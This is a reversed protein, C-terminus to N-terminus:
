ASWGGIFWNLMCLKLLFSATVPLSHAEAWASFEGAGRSVDCQGQTWTSQTCIWRFTSILKGRYVDMSYMRSFGPVLYLPCSHYRSWLTPRAVQTCFVSAGFGLCLLHPFNPLEWIAKDWVSRHLLKKRCPLNGLSERRKRRRVIKGEGAIAYADWHASCHFTQILKFDFCIQSLIWILLFMILIVTSFHGNLM